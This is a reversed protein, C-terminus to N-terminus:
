KLIPAQRLRYRETTTRPRIEEIAQEFYSSLPCLILHGFVRPFVLQILCLTLQYWTYLVVSLSFNFFYIFYSGSPGQIYSRELQSIM